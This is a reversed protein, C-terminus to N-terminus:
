YVVLVRGKWAKRTDAVYLDTEKINANEVGAIVGPRNTLTILTRM